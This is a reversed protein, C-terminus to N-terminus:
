CAKETLRLCLPSSHLGEHPRPFRLYVLSITRLGKLEPTQVLEYANYHEDVIKYIANFTYPLSTLRVLLIVM